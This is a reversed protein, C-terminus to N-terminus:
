GRLLYWAAGYLGVFGLAALVILCGLEGKADSPPLGAASAHRRQRRHEVWLFALLISCFALDVVACCLLIILATQLSV